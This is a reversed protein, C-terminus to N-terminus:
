TGIPNISEYFYETDDIVEIKHILDPHNLKREWLLFLEITYKYAQNDFSTYVLYSIYKDLNMVFPFGLSNFGTEEDATGTIYRMSFVELANVYRIWELAISNLKKFEALDFNFYPLIKNSSIKYNMLDFLKIQKNQIALYLANGAPIITNSFFLYNDSSLRYADRKASIRATEKLITLQKLGYIAVIAIVIGSLYYFLELYKVLFEYM